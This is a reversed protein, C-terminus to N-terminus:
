PKEAAPIPAPTEAADQDPSTRLQPLPATEPAVEAVPRYYTSTLYANIGHRYSEAYAALGRGNFSEFRKTNRLEADYEARAHRTGPAFDDRRAAWGGANASPSAAFGIASVAALALSRTSANM